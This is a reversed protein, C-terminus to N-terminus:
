SGADGRRIVIPVLRRDTGDLKENVVRKGDTQERECFALTGLARAVVDGPSVGFQDALFETVDRAEGLLQIRVPADIKRKKRSM